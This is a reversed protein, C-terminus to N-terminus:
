TVRSITRMIDLRQSRPQSSAKFRGYEEIACLYNIIEM